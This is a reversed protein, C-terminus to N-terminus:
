KKRLIYDIKYYSQAHGNPCIHTNNVFNMTAFSRPNLSIRASFEIECTKCKLYLDNPSTDKPLQVDLVEVPKKEIRVKGSFTQLYDNFENYWIVGGKFHCLEKVIKVLEHNPNVIILEELNNEV